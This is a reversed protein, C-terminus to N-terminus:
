CVSNSNTLHLTDSYGTRIAAGQFEEAAAINWPAFVLLCNWNNPERKGICDGKSRIKHM